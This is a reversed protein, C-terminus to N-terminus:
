LFVLPYPTDATDKQDDRKVNMVGNILNLAFLPDSPFYLRPLPPIAVFTCFLVM